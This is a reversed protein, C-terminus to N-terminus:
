GSRTRDPALRAGMRLGAMSGEVAHDITWRRSITELAADGLDASLEPSGVLRAIAEAWARPDHGDIVLCNHGPVAVDPVAGVAGSVGVALGRSMAEVLVLGFVDARSPFLLVDSEGLAAHVRAPSLAGVFRIRADGAAERELSARVSGDGVVTLRCYEQPVARLAEVLVDVGKRTSTLDGVTILEVTRRRPRRAPGAPVLVSTNRGLTVPLQPALSALYRAALAGYAIAFDAKAVLRRRQRRRVRPRRAALTAIEGSWLGFPIGAAGAYRQVTGSVAPSLGASVAITPRYRRLAAKLGLPLRPPRRRVPLDVGPVFDHEFDLREESDLWTRSGASSRLFLVRLSGGAAELRRAMGAFLPLRYHTPLNSVVAVRHGELVHDDGSGLWSAVGSSWLAEVTEAISRSPDYPIREAGRVWTAGTGASPQLEVRGDLGYAWTMLELRRMQAEDCGLEL